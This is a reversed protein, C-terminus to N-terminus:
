AGRVGARMIRDVEAPNLEKGGPGVYYQGGEPREYMKLRETADMKGTVPPFAMVMDGTGYPLMREFDPHGQPIGYNGPKPPFIDKLKQKTGPQIVGPTKYGFPIDSPANPFIESLPKGAILGNSYQDLFEQAGPHM